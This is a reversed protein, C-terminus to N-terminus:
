WRFPERHGSPAFKVLIFGILGAGGVYEFITRLM